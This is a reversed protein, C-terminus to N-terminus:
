FPIFTMVVDELKQQAGEMTAVSTLPLPLLNSKPDMPNELKSDVTIEDLYGTIDANSGDKYSTTKALVTIAYYVDNIEWGDFIKFSANYKANSATVTESITENTTTNILTIVVTVAETIEAKPDAGDKHDAPRNWFIEGKVNATTNRSTIPDLSKYTLNDFNDVKEDGMVVSETIPTAVFFAKTEIITTGSPNLFYPATFSRPEVEVSIPKQGCPISISYKGNGDTISELIKTGEAKDSYEKYMVKAIVPINAAPTSSEILTNGDKRYGNMYTVQGKITATGQIDSFNLESQEEKSCSALAAVAAMALIMVRKMKYMTDTILCRGM